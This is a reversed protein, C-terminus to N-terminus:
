LLMQILALQNQTNHKSSRAGITATWATRAQGEGPFYDDGEELQVTQGAPNVLEQESDNWGRLGTELSAVNKYRLLQITYAALVSRKDFRCIVIVRKDRATTFGAM